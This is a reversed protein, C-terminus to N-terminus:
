RGGKQTADFPVACSADAGTLASGLIERWLAVVNEAAGMATQNTNAVGCVSLTLGATDITPLKQFSRGRGQRPLTGLRVGISPEATELFDTNVALLRHSCREGHQSRELCRAQISEVARVLGRYLPTRRIPKLAVECAAEMGRLWADQAKLVEAGDIPAFLKTQPQQWRTWPLLLVPEDSVLGGTQYVTADLRRVGPLSVYEALRARLELCRQSGTSTSADLLVVAVAVKKIPREPARQTCGPVVMLALLGAAAGRVLPLSLSLPTKM